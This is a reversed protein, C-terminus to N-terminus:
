QDSAEMGPRPQGDPPAPTDRQALADPHAPAEVDAPEEGRTLADWTEIASAQPAPVVSRGIPTRSPRDYRTAGGRPVSVALLATGVVVLAAAAMAVAPMATTLQDTVEAVGTAAAAQTALVAAGGRAGVVVAALLGIAAAVAGWGLIRATARRALTRALLAAALVGVLPAITPVAEFGTASVETVLLATVQGRFWPAASAALVGVLGIILAPWGARRSRM